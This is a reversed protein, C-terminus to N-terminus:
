TFFGDWLPNFDMEFLLCLTPNQFGMRDIVSANNVVLWNGIHCFCHLFSIVWRGVYNCWNSSDTLLGYFILKLSAFLSVYSPLDKNNNTKMWLDM